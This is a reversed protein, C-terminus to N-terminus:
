TKKQLSVDIIKKIDVEFNEDSPIDLYNAGMIESNIKYMVFTPNHSLVLDNSDVFTKIIIDILEDSGNGALINKYDKNIHKSIIKRLEISDTDPYHNYNLNAIDKICDDLIKKDLNFPNENADMKYVFEVDNPTYPKLKKVNERVLNDLNLGGKKIQYSVIRVSGSRCTPSSFQM